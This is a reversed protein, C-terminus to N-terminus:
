SPFKPNVPVLTLVINSLLAKGMRLKMIEIVVREGAIKRWPDEVVETDSGDITVTYEEGPAIRVFPLPLSKGSYQYRVNESTGRVYAQGLDLTDRGRNQFTIEVHSSIREGVKYSSRVIVNFKKVDDRYTYTQCNCGENTVLYPYSPSCGSLGFLLFAVCVAGAQRM